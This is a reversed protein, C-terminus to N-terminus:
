ETQPPHRVNKGSTSPRVQRKLQQSERQTGSIELTDLRRSPAKGTKEEGKSPKKEKRSPLIRLIELIAPPFVSLLRIISATSYKVLHFSSVAGVSGNVLASDGGRGM